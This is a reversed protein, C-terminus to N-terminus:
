DSKLAKYLRYVISYLKQFNHVKPFKKNDIMIANKIAERKNEVGRRDASEFVDFVSKSNKSWDLSKLAYERANSKMHLVLEKSNSLEVLVNELSNKDCIAQPWYYGDKRAVMKQVNIVRSFDPHSFENMPGDNTVITALGSSISEAVTLGLGDLRSPYVYVDGLNYLGPSSVTKTVVQLRNKEILVDIEHHLCKFRDLGKLDVQTHIVLCADCQEHIEHFASLLIDTGKRYPNMGASHFFTVHAQNVLGTTLPKFLDVDTGWPVFFANAYESMAAMHKNTNCIVADYAAFLPITEETYYDVYAISKVNLEACWLIPPWFRQENFLVADINNDELWEKFEREDIYYSLPSHRKKSWYVEKYDWKPDGLAYEEGRAYIFVEYKELLVDRFQKSVYSAGREFWTTVIGIKKM